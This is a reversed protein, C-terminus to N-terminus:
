SLGGRPAIPAFLIAQHGGVARAVRPHRGACRAPAARRRPRFRRELTSPANCYPRDLAPRLAGWGDLLLTPQDLPLYFFRASYLPNILQRASLSDASSVDAVIKLQGRYGKNELVNVTM